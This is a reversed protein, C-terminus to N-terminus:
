TARVAIAQRAVEIGNSLVRAEATYYGAPKLVRTCSGSADGFACYPSTTETHALAGNIWFQVAVTGSANTTAQVAWPQNLNPSGLVTLDVTAALPPPSATTPLYTVIASLSSENNALDYATIAYYQTVAPTGIDFSTVKGVTALLTATGSSKSCPLQSCHYIYYGALDSESNMTWTLTAGWASTSCLVFVAAIARVRNM